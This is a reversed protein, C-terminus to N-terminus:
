ENNKGDRVYESYLWYKGNEVGTLKIAIGMEDQMTDKVFIYIVERELFPEFNDLADVYFAKQKELDQIFENCLRIERDIRKKAKETKNIQKQLWIDIDAKQKDIDENYKDVCRKFHKIYSKEIKPLVKISEEATGIFFFSTKSGIYLRENLQTEISYKIYDKLKM